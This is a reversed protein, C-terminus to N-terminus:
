ANAKRRGFYLIGGVLAVTGIGIGLWAGNSLPGSMKRFWSASGSNSGATPVLSPSVAGAAAELERAKADAKLAEIHLPGAPDAEGVAKQATITAELRAQRALAAKAEQEKQKAAQEKKQQASAAIGGAGKLLEALASTTLATTDSDGIAVFEEEIRDIENM